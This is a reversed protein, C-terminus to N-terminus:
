ANLKLCQLLKPGWVRRSFDRQISRAQVRAKEKAEEFNEYVRRMQEVAHELSPEAWKQEPTFIAEWASVQCHSIQFDVLFSFQPDLYDLPGGYNTAIVPVGAAAAEFGGLGWGEGRSLLVYCHNHRHFDLIEHRPLDQYVLQVEPPNSFRSQIRALTRQSSNWRNFLHHLVRTNIHKTCDKRTTKLVLRVKDRGTFARCFAESVLSLAKRGTWPGISYFTFVESSFEAITDELQKELLHPIVHVPPRVGSDRFVRQNWTSPVLVARTANLPPLFDPPLRDTEWTTYAVTPALDTPLSSNHESPVLQLVVLDPEKLERTLHQLEPHHHDTDAPFSGKPTWRTPLWQIEVGLELLAQIYQKASLAYGTNGSQTM